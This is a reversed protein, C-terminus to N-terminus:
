AHRFFLQAGLDAAQANGFETRGEDALHEDVGLGLGERFQHAYGAKGVTRVYPQVVGLVEDRRARHLQLFGNGGAIVDHVIENLM